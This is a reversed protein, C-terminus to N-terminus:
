FDIFEISSSVYPLDSLMVNWAGYFFARFAFWAIAEQEIAMFSSQMMREAEM